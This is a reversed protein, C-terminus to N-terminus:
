MDLRLGLFYEIQNDDDDFARVNGTLAIKKKLDIVAGLSLGTDSQDSLELQIVSANLEFKDGVQARIGADVQYGESTDKYDKTFENGIYSLTGLVDIKKTISYNGGLGIQFRSLDVKDEFAVTAPFDDVDLWLRTYALKLHVFDAAAYSVGASFGIGDLNDEDVGSLGFEAYTYNFGKKAHVVQAGMGMCICAVLVLWRKNNM